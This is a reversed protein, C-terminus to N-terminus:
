GPADGSTPEIRFVPHDAPDPLQGFFKKVESDWRDRYAGIIRPREEVGIETARFPEAHGRRRIEGGGAARLNRVWETEGRAAVLYRTGDLELVNVPVARWAGSRRGQVALTPKSSVARVIPNLIKRTVFDPRLYAM